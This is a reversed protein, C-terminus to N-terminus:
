ILGLIKAIFDVKDEVLTLGAYIEQPSKQPPKNVKIIQGDKYIDGAEVGTTDMIEYAETAADINPVDPTEFKYKIEGTTKDFVFGKILKRNSLMAKVEDSQLREKM